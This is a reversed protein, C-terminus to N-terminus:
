APLILGARGSRSTSVVAAYSLRLQRQWQMGYHHLTVSRAYANEVQSRV